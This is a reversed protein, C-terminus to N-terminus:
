PGKARVDVAYGYGLMESGREMRKNFFVIKGKVAAADKADLVELSPVEVVGGGVGGGPTPPSSGLAALILKQRFPATVEGTEVGRQWAPVMVKEAHVNSFGLEKLKALAWAVGVADQPSGSLRPGVEDTLGRVWDAAKTGSFARERLAEATKRVEPSLTTEDATTPAPRAAALVAAGVVSLTVFVAVVVVKLPKGGFQHASGILRWGRM